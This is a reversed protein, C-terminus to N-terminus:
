REDRKAECRIVYAGWIGTLEALVIANMLVETLKGGDISVEVKHKLNFEHVYTIVICALLGLPLALLSM